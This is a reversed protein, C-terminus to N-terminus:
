CLEDIRTVAGAVPFELNCGGVVDVIPYVVALTIERL